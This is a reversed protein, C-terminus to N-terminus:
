LDEQQRSPPREPPFHTELACRMQFFVGFVQKCKNERQTVHHDEHNCRVARTKAWTIPSMDGSFRLTTLSKSCWLLSQVCEITKRGTLSTLLQIKEGGVGSKPGGAYRSPTRQNEELAPSGAAKVTPKRVPRQTQPHKQLQKGLARHSQSTHLAQTAQSTERQQGHHRQERCILRQAPRPAHYCLHGPLSGFYAPEKVRIERRREERCGGGGGGGGVGGDREDSSVGDEEERM